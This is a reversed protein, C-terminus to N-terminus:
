LTCTIAPLSAKFLQCKCAASLAATPQEELSNKSPLAGASQRQQQSGM